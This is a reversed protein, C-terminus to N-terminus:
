LRGGMTRLLQVYSDHPISSTGLDKTVWTFRSDRLVTWFSTSGAADDIRWALRKAYGLYNRRTFAHIAMNVVAVPYADLIGIQALTEVYKTRNGALGEGFVKKMFADNRSDVKFLLLCGRYQLDRLTYDFTNWGVGRLPNVFDAIKERREEWSRVAMDGDLGAAHKLFDIVGEKRLAKGFDYDWKQLAACGATQNLATSSGTYV